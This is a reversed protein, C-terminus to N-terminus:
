GKGVVKLDYAELGDAGRCVAFTVHDGLRCSGALFFPVDGKFAYAAQASDSEIFGYLEAVPM